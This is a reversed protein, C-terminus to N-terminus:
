QSVLTVVRFLWGGVREGTVVSTMSLRNEVVWRRQRKKLEFKIRVAISGRGNGLPAVAIVLPLALRPRPTLSGM